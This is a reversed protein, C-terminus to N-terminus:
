KIWGFFEALKVGCWVGLALVAIGALITLIWLIAKGIKM